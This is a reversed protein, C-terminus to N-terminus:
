GANPDTKMRPHVHPHRHLHAHDHIDAEQLCGGSLLRARNALDAVFGDDHSVMIMAGEFGHLVARLRAGNEADVGNTPEDLLLVQPRMALLGALCVLRKEGGSLKHVLREALAAIGLHALTERAIKLAQANSQGLNLPGFAVDEVVTPCFLQDDSDQFLFGIRPRHSRFEAEHTCTQGFLAVTGSSPVQLGMIARLLTTKGAGNPGVIALRDRPALTLSVERLVPLGDRTVSLRDLVVPATM